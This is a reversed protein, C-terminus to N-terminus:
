LRPDPDAPRNESGHGAPLQGRAPAEGRAAPDADTKGREAAGDRAPLWAALPTNSQGPERMGGVAEEVEGLRYEVDGKEESIRWELDSIRDTADLGGAVEEKLDSIQEKADELGGAVEEKLDSIQEKADELGGAVEEKLDSIQEKADELGGAVEEKLDSIQEKADELGGAVEEKLDSIQEKADELGGAKEDLSDSIAGVASALEGLQERMEEVAQELYPLSYEDSMASPDIGPTIVRTRGPGRPAAHGAAALASANEGIRIRALPSGRARQALVPM